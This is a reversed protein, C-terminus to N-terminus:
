RLLEFYELNKKENDNIKGIKEKELKSYKTKLEKMNESCKECKEVHVKLSELFDKGKDFQEAFIRGKNYYDITRKDCKEPNLEGSFCKYDPVQDGYLIFGELNEGVCDIEKIM